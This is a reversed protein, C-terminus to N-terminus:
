IILSAQCLMDALLSNKSITCTSSDHCPIPIKFTSHATRGGPLLLAAIGSSAVCLVIKGQARLEACVAKYVFTKGTGGPGQLWFLGGHNAHQIIANFAAQQEDNMQDKMGEAEEALEFRDYELQEAIFRNQHEALLLDWNTRFPPFEGNFKDDALSSGQTRLLKDILYLGYDLADAQTSAPNRRRLQHLLDDCIHDKFRTWLLGPETPNCHQLM